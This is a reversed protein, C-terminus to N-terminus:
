FYTGSINVPHLSPRHPLRVIKGGEHASHRSIQSGSFEPVRQAQGPRYHSQKVKKSFSPLLPCKIFYSKDDSM